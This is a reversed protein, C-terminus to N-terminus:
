RRRLLLAALLLAGGILVVQPIPQALEPASADETANADVPTEGGFQGGGGGAFTGGSSGFSGLVKGLTGVGASSGLYAAGGVAAAAGVVQLRKRFSKRDLGYVGKLLKKDFKILKKGSRKLFKGLGM